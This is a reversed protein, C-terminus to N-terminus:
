QEEHRKAAAEYAQDFHQAAKELAAQAKASYKEHRAEAASARTLAISEQLTALADRRRM